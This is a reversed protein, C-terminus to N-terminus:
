DERKLFSELKDCSADMYTHSWEVANHKLIEKMDSPVNAEQPYEFDRTAVPVTNKGLELSRAIEKRVWDKNEPDNCCRDLSEATLLM